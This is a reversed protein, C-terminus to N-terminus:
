QTVHVSRSGFLCCNNRLTIFIIIDQIYINPSM